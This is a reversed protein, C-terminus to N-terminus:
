LTVTGTSAEAAEAVTACFMAMLAPRALAQVATEWRKTGCFSQDRSDLRSSVCATETSLAIRALM